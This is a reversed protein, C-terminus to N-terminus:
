NDSWDRMCIKKVLHNLKSWHSGKWYFKHCRDCQYFNNVSAYIEIPVIGYAHPKDVQNLVGNCKLCRTLPKIFNRLHIRRVVELSQGTPDPSHIFMGHTVSKRKLLGRDRTLIIRKERLSICAIQDDNITNYYSCDLGLLRLNRSLKGLNVDSIFRPSRLPPRGLRSVRTIDLTEFCPFVGVRDQDRIRYDFGVSRGNVLILDVETHPVGQSEILDKISRKDRNYVGYERKRCDRPLFDNLEEYFRISIKLM